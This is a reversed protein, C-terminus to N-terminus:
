SVIRLGLSQIQRNFEELDDNLVAELALTIAALREQLNTTESM